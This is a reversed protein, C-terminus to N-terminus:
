GATRAALGIAVCRALVAERPVPVLGFANVAAGVDLAFADHLRRELVEVRGTGHGEVLAQAIAGV